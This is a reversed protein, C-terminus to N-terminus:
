VQSFPETTLKLPQCAPRVHPKGDLERIEADDHVEYPRPHNEPALVDRYSQCEPQEAAAQQVHQRLCDEFHRDLRVLVLREPADRPAEPIRSADPIRTQANRKQSQAEHQEIWDKENGYKKAHV